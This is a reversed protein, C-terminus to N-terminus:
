APTYTAIPFHVGKCTIEGKPLCKIQENVLQWTADSILIGGPECHSQIRAAINTQLGIATYTMRGESGYSGVSVMGTNIGIRIQLPAGLGLKRWRANLQPLEAQMAQAARVASRAQAEPELAAPAGFLAMLGDGIFENVTGQHADVIRAMAAMYESIIQTMVEPEVRDATETFGVIDSFLVTVRRRQPVEIGDTGGGIIHDALAPPVYRRILNRSQELAANQRALLQENVFSRRFFREGVASMVVIFFYTIFPIVIYPYALIERESGRPHTALVTLVSALLLPLASVMAYLPPLRMFLAFCSFLIMSVVMPGADYFGLISRINFEIIWAMVCGVIILMVSSILTAYRRSRTFTLAFAFLLAPVSILYGPLWLMLWDIDPKWLYGAPGGFLWPPLSVLAVLRYVPINQENRWVRYDREAADSLFRLGWNTLTLDYSNGSSM